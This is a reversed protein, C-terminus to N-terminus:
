KHDDKSWALPKHSAGEGEKTWVWSGRFKETSKDETITELKCVDTLKKSSDLFGWYEKVKLSNKFIDGVVPFKNDADDIKLNDAIKKNHKIKWEKSDDQGKTEDSSLTYIVGEVDLKSDESTAKASM